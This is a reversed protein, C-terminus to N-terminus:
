STEIIRAMGQAILAKANGVPLRVIDHKILPGYLKNDLGVFAEVDELIRIILNGQSTNIADSNEEIQNSELDSDEQLSTTPLNDQTDLINPKEMGLMAISKRLDKILRREGWTCRREMDIPVNSIVSNLIKTLRLQALDKRLFEMREIIEDVIEAWELNQPKRYLKALKGDISIYFDAPIELLTSSAREELWLEYLSRYDM